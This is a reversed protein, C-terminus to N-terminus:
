VTAMDIYFTRNDLISVYDADEPYYILYLSGGADISRYDNLVQCLPDDEKLGAILFHYNSKSQDRYVTRLLTAFIDHRNDETAVLSLYLYPIKAGPKPLAHLSSFRAAINYFPRAARLSGSYREVHTQRFDAQDWVAVCGVIRDGGYAIYFNDPTLGLLQPAGIDEVRYHPALQKKAHERNLFALVQPMVSADGRRISVGDCAQEPKHRDLHIAPTVIRGRKEYIPLGARARTINAIADDNGDLIVSFYLPVHDATHLERLFAYGRALLTRKRADRDGRLDSLYGVRAAVGNVFLNKIHRAGLGVICGSDSDTVKIIQSQQGQVGCGLFYDPERRFSLAMDGSMEDMAMRQRLEADDSADALSIRYRAAM